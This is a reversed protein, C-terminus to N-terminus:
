RKKHDFYEGVIIGEYDKESVFQYRNKYLKPPYMHRKVFATSQPSKHGLYLLLNKVTSFRLATNFLTDILVISNTSRALLPRRRLSLNYLYDPHM